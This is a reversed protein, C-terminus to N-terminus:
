KGNAQLTRIRTRFVELARLQGHSHLAADRMEPSFVAKKAETAYDAEADEVAIDLYELLAELGHPCTLLLKLQKNVYARRELQPNSKNPVM